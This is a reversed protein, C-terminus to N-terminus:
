LLGGVKYVYEVSQWKTATRNNAIRIHLAGADGVGTVGQWDKKIASVDGWLFSNWQATNWLTGATGSFTPTAAPYNDAFDMDMALTANLNGSTLFIPRVMTIQKQRGPAGFYRFATKAEGFIYAGDDSTGTDAMAVFASNASLGLNSGFYLANNQTAFVNANWGTFRCWAGTITNMVYQYQKSGPTQPVNVILKNGSPYLCVGWGFNDFYSDVDANVLNIIKNSIADSLQARNTLLAKSLPMFGDTTLMIVDSGMRTYCRRGIPRGIQFHAALVWNDAVSPDTGTYGIVEGESSIFVAYENIGAANDITWTMMAMLYGGLSFLPAMDISSAAGGVSNVPLYWIRFSDKEVFFVRKKYANVHALKRGDVGTINITSTDTVQAWATGNYLQPYDVGNVCYLFQGGPTGINTHQWRANALGTVLPAGVAGQATADYFATGAAAFLKSGTPANYPMLSEVAAPYGTSWKKFGNRLDVSTTSPFFNDLIVADNPPMSALADLANLGGIPAPVTLQKAPTVRSKRRAQPIM